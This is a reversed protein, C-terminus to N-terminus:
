WVVPSVSVRVSEDPQLVMWFILSVSAFAEFSDYAISLAYSRRSSYSSMRSATDAFRFFYNM